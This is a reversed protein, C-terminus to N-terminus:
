LALLRLPWLNFCTLHLCTLTSRLKKSAMMEAVCVSSTSANVVYSDVFPNVVTVNHCDWTVAKGNKWPILSLDDPHKGDKRSLGIPEKSSPVGESCMVRWIIAHHRTQRRCALRTSVPLYFIDVALGAQRLLRSFPCRNWKGCRTNFGKGERTEICSGTSGDDFGM